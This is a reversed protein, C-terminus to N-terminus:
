EENKYKEIMKLIKCKKNIGEPFFQKPQLYCILDDIKVAIQALTVKQEEIAKLLMEAIHEIVSEPYENLSYNGFRRLWAKVMSKASMLTSIHYNNEEMYEMIDQIDIEEGYTRKEEWKIKM